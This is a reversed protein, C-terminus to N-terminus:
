MQAEAMGARADAPAAFAGTDLPAAKDLGWQRAARTFRSALMDALEDIGDGKLGSVMLVDSYVGADFLAADESGIGADLEARGRLVLM